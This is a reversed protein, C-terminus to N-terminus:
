GFMGTGFVDQFKFYLMAFAILELLVAAAALATYVNNRPRITTYDSATSVTRSM